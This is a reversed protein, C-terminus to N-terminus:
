ENIQRERDEIGDCLSSSCNRVFCRHGRWHFRQLEAGDIRIFCVLISRVQEATLEEDADYVAFKLEQVTEFVYDLIIRKM